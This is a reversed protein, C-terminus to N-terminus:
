KEFRGGLHKALFREARAYFDLRNAPRAFGHGEDPYEIYEVEKGAERLANVMQLAESKKVRPDNAGQAMLLPKTIRDVKYLPSRSKLFEADRQPHGIRDFILPEVPKLYPPLSSIFTILNSPGVIDIACRFVDPTEALATLAAYGGFSTGFIGVRNPDAIGRDVAWNVADVLDNQIKGGWERTGANLFNKGYGSSGRFNVQLVAYGRNALWQATEDYGWTVRSWPGNNVVLVTPLSRPAVEPPITLYGQILLGDRARFGIPVMCALPINELAERDSFLRRTKGAERHYLYYAKPGVDTTYAVLWVRDAHDRGIIKFDDAPRTHRIRTFDRKLSPDIVKWHLREKLFGVAQITHETPHMLVAAVDAFHDTAVSTEVGTALDVRRLESVNSGLSSLLFVGSNDATFGIIGSNFASQSPWTQFKRWPEQEHGRHLLELGGDPTARVAARVRLRHDSEFGIAGISNETDLNIEANALHIRYIDHWEPDRRNIGVLLENPVGPDDSLNRVQIGDFPTLDREVDEVLDVAFLHWNEDGNRDQIYLIQRSNQAWHFTRIGRSQDRTVVRDDTKDLSRVWVNMVGEYPALYALHNGDPSLSPSSRDPNGFLVSRSILPHPDRALGTSALLTVAASVLCTLWRGSCCTQAPYDLRFARSARQPTSGGPKQWADHPTPLM